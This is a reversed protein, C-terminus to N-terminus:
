AYITGYIEELLDRSFLCCSFQHSPIYIGLENFIILCKINNTPKTIQLEIRPLTDFYNTSRRSYHKAKKNSFTTDRCRFHQKFTNGITSFSFHTNFAHFQEYHLRLEHEQLYDKDHVITANLRCLFCSGRYVNSVFLSIILQNNQNLSTFALVAVIM